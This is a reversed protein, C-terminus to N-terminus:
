SSSTGKLTSLSAEVSEPRPRHHWIWLAAGLMCWGALAFWHYVGFGIVAIGALALSLVAGVAGVLRPWPRVPGGAGCVFALCTSLWGLTCALSGVESILDLVKRGLASAGISIGGVLLIAATPTQLKEDVRGMSASFLDRRGMAYLLRTAALFSGNYVKLLSLVVGLMIVQVLWPWGFAHEFAVATAFDRETLGKWPELLGVVAVVVVYFFTAVGLALLMVRLFLRPPFDTAAEESCKPITEFGNMFYPAVQLMAVVAILGATATGDGSFPPALNAVNGRGLGFVTLLVFVALLGFTTWNQFAASFRIGSYNLATITITLGVGLVLHPLYVTYGGVVYLAGQNLEPFVYGAIMGFSVAEFPCVIVYSLAMAWGAAFSVVPPFVAGTYAVETGAEPMREALRGYAYAVPVLAVGVLLFALMAGAPGGRQLWDGMVTMWGVGVISGFALTFYERGRMARRLAPRHGANAQQTEM